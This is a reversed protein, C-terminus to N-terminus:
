VIGRFKSLLNRLIDSSLTLTNKPANNPTAPIEMHHTSMTPTDPNWSWKKKKGNPPITLEISHAIPSANPPSKQRNRDRPKSLLLYGLLIFAAGIWFIIIIKAHNSLPLLIVVGITTIGLFFGAIMATLLALLAVWTPLNPFSQNLFIEVRNIM